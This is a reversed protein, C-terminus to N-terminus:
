SAKMVVDFLENPWPVPQGSIIDQLAGLATTIADLTAREQMHQLEGSSSNSSASGSIGSDSASHTQFRLQADELYGNVQQLLFDPAPHEGNADGSSQRGISGDAVSRGDHGASYTDAYTNRSAADSRDIRKAKTSTVSVDRNMGSSSGGDSEQSTRLSDSSECRSLVLQRRTADLSSKLKIVEQNSKIQLMMRKMHEGMQMHPPKCRNPLIVPRSTMLAHYAVAAKGWSVTLVFSCAHVPEPINKRHSSSLSTAPLALLATLHWGVRSERAPSPSTHM